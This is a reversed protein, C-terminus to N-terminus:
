RPLPQPCSIKPGRRGPQTMRGCCAVLPLLSVQSACCTFVGYISPIQCPPWCHSGGAMHGSIFGTIEASNAFSTRLEGSSGPQCSCQGTKEPGPPQLTLLLCPFGPFLLAVSTARARTYSGPYSAPLTTSFAAAM